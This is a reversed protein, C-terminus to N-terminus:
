IKRQVLQEAVYLSSSNVFVFKRWFTSVHNRISCIVFAENHTHTDTRARTHACVCTRAHTHVCAHV